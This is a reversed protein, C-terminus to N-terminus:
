ETTGHVFAEVSERVWRRHGGVQRRQIKDLDSKSDQIHRRLTAVSVRLAKAVETDTMLEQQEVENVSVGKENISDEKM